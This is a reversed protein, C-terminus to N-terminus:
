LTTSLSGGKSLVYFLLGSLILKLYWSMPLKGGAVNSNKLCFSFLIFVSPVNKDTKFCFKERSKKDNDM